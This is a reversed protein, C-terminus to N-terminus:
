KLIAAQVQAEQWRYPLPDMRFLFDFDLSEERDKPSRYTALALRAEYEHPSPCNCLRCSNLANFVSHALGWVEYLPEKRRRKALQSEVRSNYDNPFKIMPEDSCSRIFQILDDRQELTGFQIFHRIDDLRDKESGSSTWL